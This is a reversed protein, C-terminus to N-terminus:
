IDQDGTLLLSILPSYRLNMHLISELRRQMESTSEALAQGCLAVAETVDGQDFALLGRNFLLSPDRNIAYAAAFDKDAQTYFEQGAYLAGRNALIGAAFSSYFVKHAGDGRMVRNLDDLAATYDRIALDEDGHDTALDGSMMWWLWTRPMSDILIRADHFRRLSMLLYAHRQAISEDDPALQRAKQMAEVAADPDSLQQYLTSQLLYDVVTPSAIAKLDDLAALKNDDGEMRSLIAARMRRIGDDMPFAEVVETLAALADELEGARLHAEARELPSFPM